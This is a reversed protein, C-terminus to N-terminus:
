FLCKVHKPANKPVRNGTAGFALTAVLGHVDRSGRRASNAGCTAACIPTFLPLSAPPPTPSLPPLAKRWIEDESARVGDLPALITEFVQRGNEGFLSKDLRFGRLPRPQDLELNRRGAYYRNGTRTRCVMCWYGRTLELRELLQMVLERKLRRVQQAVWPLVASVNNGGRMLIPDGENKRPLDNELIISCSQRLVFYVGCLELMDSQM